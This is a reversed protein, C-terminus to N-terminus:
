LIQVHLYSKGRRDSHTATVSSEDNPLPVFGDVFDALVGVGLVDCEVEGVVRLRVAGMEDAAVARARLDSFLETTFDTSRGQVV